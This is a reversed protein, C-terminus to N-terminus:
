LSFVIFFTQMRPASAANKKDEREGTKGRSGFGPVIVGEDRSLHTPQSVHWGSVTLAPCQEATFDAGVFGGDRKCQSQLPMVPGGKNLWM